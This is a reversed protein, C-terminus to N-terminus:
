ALITARSNHDGKPSSWPLSCYSSDPPIITKSEEKTETKEDHFYMPSPTQLTLNLNLLLTIQPLDSKQGETGQNTFDPYIQFPLSQCHLNKRLIHSKYNKPKVYYEWHLQRKIKCLLLITTPLLPWINNRFNKGIM